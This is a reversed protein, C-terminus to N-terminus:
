NFDKFYDTVLNDADYGFQKQAAAGYKLIAECLEAMSSQANQYLVVISGITFEYTETLRNGDLDYVAFSFVDRMRKAAIGTYQMVYRGANDQKWEQSPISTVVEQGTVKDVRTIKLVLDEEAYQAFDSKLFKINFNIADNLELSKGSLEILGDNTESLVPLVKGAYDDPNVVTTDEYAEYGAFYTTTGGDGAVEKGLWDTVLHEEDYGFRVQAAAGYRLMAVCLSRMVPNSASAAYYADLLSVVSYENLETIQNGDKDYVAIEFIDNMQKAAIGKYLIVYRGQNDTQWLINGEADQYPIITEYEEGDDGSIRIVKAYLEEVTEDAFDAADIKLNFNIAEQLDLSKGDITELEETEVVFTSFGNPNLFTAYCIGDAGLAVKSLYKYPEAQGDKHHKIVVRETATNVFGAPLPVTITITKGATELTGSEGVKAENAGQKAVVDYMAKIDLTMSKEGETAVEKVAVNLYPRVEVTVEEAEASTDLLAGLAEEAAEKTINATLEEAAETVVEGLVANNAEKNQNLADAVTDATINEDTISEDISGTSDGPKVGIELGPEEQDAMKAEMIDAIEGASLVTSYIAIDDFTYSADNDSWAWAQNGGLCIYDLAAGDTFLGAVRHGDTGDAYWQNQLEGDVYVTVYNESFTATYYHWEGGDLWFTHETNAGAMNDTAAFDSYGGCNIQAILRSQLALMPWTNANDVPAAGYAMFLPSNWFDTADAVNVWFGVSMEKNGAGVANAIADEPLLLYNTRVGPNATANHYIKGFHVDDDDEIAGTGVQTTDGYGAEFDNFYTRYTEVEEAARDERVEPTPFPTPDPTPEPTPTPEEEAKKEAVLGAIEDETLAVSFLSVEDFMFSADNDSWGWAQNGGLCVYDLLTGDTFLGNVTNGDTGSVEWQNMVVGDVYVTVLEETFTATYYHWADDGLWTTDVTNPGEVNEADTLDTWGACNMSGVLRAQLAFMPYENEGNANPAAGYATFLPAYKNAEVDADALNVWFGVTMENNGACAAKSITDSPLLLYNTRIGATGGVVNHYVNNFKEDEVPEIAGSGVQTADGYGAEFDNFYTRYEEVDRPKGIENMYTNIETANLATSFLSVKDFMFSADNDAWDWAQNGGLCVYDLDAGNSFLGAITHGDTGDLIWQNMVEGDVYVTVVDETFTATYYHWANDNLWAVSEQNAGAVNDAVVFDTYGACNLQALLRSQLAMMPWTNTPNPEAGYAMFLPAYLYGRTKDVATEAADAANVWFGVTMEKSGTNTANKITDSPLLLYNTRVGATGTANHYVSNFREDEVTELEGSGVVSVNEGLGEEFDNYYTRYNTLEVYTRGTEPKENEDNEDKTLFADYLASVDAATLARNYFCLDDARFPASGWWSGYGLYFADASNLLNTVSSYTAFGNGSGFAKTYTENFILAGDLYIDFGTTDNVVTVMSWEKVPIANTVTEAHNADFWGGTGNFGLYANGTLYYRGDIGDSNDADVFGWLADWVDSDTRKVMMSITAANTTSGKLPNTFKVYNSTDVGTEANNFGFNVQVVSSNLDIDKKISPLTGSGPTGTEGVAESLSDKFGDEFEFKAVLGTTIDSTRSETGMVTVNFAKEYATNGKVITCTMTVDTDQAPVTVVGENSLVAPNSSTWTVTAGEKGTTPLTVNQYIKGDIPFINNANAIGLSNRTLALAYENSLAHSGWVSVGADSKATFCLTKNATGDITQEVLVGKYEVDGLTITVYSGYSVTWTGTYAGSVTGNEELTITSPTVIEMNEYDMEYKHVIVQYEGAIESADFSTIALTDNNVTEGTYEYPAAVLWGDENLYLQHVRLAHEATGNNFKTHYIVYTNNNSDTFASNHGQAVEGLSMTEWQYGGMLKDGNYAAIANGYNMKYTKFIASEGNADVYPGNINDSRFIRMEYGGDPSYFGYSMFLFWYDGIKEVYAGEGSVYAGGALKTGFYADSTVKAEGPNVDEYVVTYDRLGTNEDLEISYIGGSWSGYILYLNGDEDYSVCPDIAHPWITGWSEGVYYKEPLGTTEIDPYVFKLDSTTIDMPNTGNFGSYIVPGQYVYPGEITDATLLIIVSNWANGNLSLYMCWKEMTENYVVDPAWMNGKVTFNDVATNWASADYTGFDVENGARNLVTGTYANNRFAQEYSVATITGEEDVTGFLTSNADNESSVSTWNRLDTTKAVGMHSGFVYYNVNDVVISPDHVAQRTFGLVENADGLAADLAADDVYTYPIEEAKAQLVLNPNGIADCLVMTALVFIAVINKWQKRKM